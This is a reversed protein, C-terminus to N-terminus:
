CCEELPWESPPSNIYFDEEDGGPRVRTFRIPVSQVKLGHQTLHYCLTSEAHIVHGLFSYEKIFDYESLYINMSGRNGVAFRDNYGAGQVIAWCHFDPIYIQKEIDYENFNAPLKDFYKVDLRSRIIRDYQFNNKEEHAKRMENCEKMGHLMQIYGNIGGREGAQMHNIGELDLVPDPAVIMETSTMYKAAKHSSENESIYMFIDCEGLPELLNRKISEHTFELSRCQGTFCVATKM